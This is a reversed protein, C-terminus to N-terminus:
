RQAGVLRFVADWEVPIGNSLYDGARFFAAFPVDDGRRDRDLTFAGTATRFRAVPDSLTRGSNLFGNRSLGVSQIAGAPWSATFVFGKRDFV